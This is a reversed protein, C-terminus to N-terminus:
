RKEQFESFTIFEGKSKLWVLYKELKKLMKEGSDKKIYNPLNFQSIDTFEWPHFFINLYRDSNLTIGSLFQYLKLPLNKFSLWFLPLRIIPTVSIPISFLDGSYHAKRKKFFNNYRGPIFTPNMSSNYSYGANMIEREECEM